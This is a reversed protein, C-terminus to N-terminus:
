DHTVGLGYTIELVICLENGSEGCFVKALGVKGVTAVCVSIM